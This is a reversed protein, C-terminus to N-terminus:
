LIQPLPLKHWDDNLGRRVMMGSVVAAFTMISACMLVLIGTISANRQNHRDNRGRDDSGGGGPPLDPITPPPGGINSQTLAPM